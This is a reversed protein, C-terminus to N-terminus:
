VLREMDLWSEVVIDSLINFLSEFVIEVQDDLLKSEVLLDSWLHLSFKDLISSHELFELLREVMEEILALSTEGVLKNDIHEASKIGWSSNNDAVLAIDFFDVEDSLTDDLDVVVIIILNLFFLWDKVQRFETIESVILDQLAKLGVNHDSSQM